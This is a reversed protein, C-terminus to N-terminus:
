SKPLARLVYYSGRGEDSSDIPFRHVQLWTERDYRVGREDRHWEDEFEIEGDLPRGVGDPEYRRTLV